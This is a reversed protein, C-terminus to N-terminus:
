AFVHEEVALAADTKGGPELVPRSQPDAIVRADTVVARERHSLLDRDASIAADGGVHDPEVRVAVGAVRGGPSSSTRGTRIPSLTQIPLRAMTKGPTVIPSPLTTEAPETTVLSTGGFVTTAPLGARLTATRWSADLLLICGTETQPRCDSN